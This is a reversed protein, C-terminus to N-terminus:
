VYFYHYQIPIGNYILNRVEASDKNKFFECKFNNLFPENTAISLDIIDSSSTFYNLKDLELRKLEDSEIKRSKEFIIYKENGIFNIMKRNEILTPKSLLTEKNLLINM